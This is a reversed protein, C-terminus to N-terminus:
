VNHVMNEDSDTKNSKILKVLIFLLALILFSLISIVVIYITRNSKPEEKESSGCVTEYDAETSYFRSVDSTFSELTNNYIQNGNYLVNVYYSDSDDNKNLELIVNSAFVINNFHLDTLNLASKLFNLWLAINTDHASFLVMKPGSSGKIQTNMYSIMQRVTPTVTVKAIISTNDFIKWDLGNIAKVSQNFKELDVSLYNMDRKEFDDSIFADSYDCLQSWKKFHDDTKNLSKKLSEKFQTNFDNMVQDIEGKMNAQNDKTIKSIGKSCKYALNFPHYNDFVHMPLTQFNNQLPSGGLFNQINELDTVNMPPVAMTKQSESLFESRYPFLGSLQSYATQITRNRDTVYLYIENPNFNPNILSNNFIYRQRLTQGLLYHERMGSYTLEQENDWYQNLVDLNNKLYLPGRAGHRFVEFVFLVKCNALSGILIILSSIFLSLRNM